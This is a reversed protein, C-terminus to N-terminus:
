WFLYVSICLWILKYISIGGYLLEVYVVQSSDQLIEWDGTYLTYIDDLYKELDVM